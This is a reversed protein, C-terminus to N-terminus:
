LCCFFSGEFKGAIKFKIPHTEIKISQLAENQFYHQM